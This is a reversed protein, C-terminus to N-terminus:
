GGEPEITPRPWAAGVMQGLNGGLYVLAIAAWFVFLLTGLAHSLVAAATLQAPDAATLGGFVGVFFLEYTGVSGPTVSLSQTITFLATALLLTSYPTPPAVARFFSIVAVSQVLWVALSLGLVPALLHPRAIAQMGDLLSQVLGHETQRWRPPLPSVLRSALRLTGAPHRVAVLMTVVVATAPAVVLLVRAAYSGASGPKGQWVLAVLVICGLALVDLVREVVVSAAAELFRPRRGLGIAYARLVDGVKFPIVSNTGWGLATVATARRTSLEPAVPFLLLRWRWGRLGLFLTYGGLGAAMWPWSAHAVRAALRPPDAFWVVGSLLLFGAALAVGARLLPRRWLRRLM